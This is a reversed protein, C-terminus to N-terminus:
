IRGIKDLLKMLYIKDELNIKVKYLRFSGILIGITGISIVGAVNAYDFAIIGFCSLFLLVMIFVILVISAIKDFLVWKNTRKLIKELTYIDDKLFDISFGRVWYNDFTQDIISIREEIDLKIENEKM